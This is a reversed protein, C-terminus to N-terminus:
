NRSRLEDVLAAAALLDPTGFGETFRSVIPAIAEFAQETRGRAAWLRALSIGTRLELSLLERERALNLSKLLCAESESGDPSMSSLIEGKVRLLNILSLIRERTEAWIV